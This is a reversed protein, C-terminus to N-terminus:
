GRKGGNASATLAQNAHFVHGEEPFRGGKVDLVYKKLSKQGDEGFNGYKKVFSPCFGNLSYQLVDHFVLVQGDCFRGSGIGITPVPVTESIIRAAEETVCELVIAFVGAEALAKADEILAELSAATKGQIRYGTQKVFQPKLGIHGMVPIGAQVCSTITPALERGGEMKVATAGGEQMLRGSAILADRPSLHYTLFPLDAVLLPRTIGRNVARTHHVMDDITVPITSEYGLVVMGVSDGVLIVDVGSAEALQGSPYDYATLMAIPEKERKMRQLRSVTVPRTNREM